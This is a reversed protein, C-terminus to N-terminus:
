RVPQHLLRLEDHQSLLRARSCRRSVTRGNNGFWDPVWTAQGIDWQNPKNNVPANGLAIIWETGPEPKPTLRVGCQLLSAQIATFLRTNFSDSPYLYTLTVGNPYGAKTLDSKCAATDGQGNADPYANTNKYGLNGPPIVTNIASAVCPGGSAKVVASKDVGLEIAERVLLKNAAGGSDPSRLNFVLYPYTTSWPWIKFNPDNAALLSPISSANITTDMPLDATGAQMDSLQTEASAVGETVQITSVYDHRITDTSQKWAANRVMTISKGPQYSSIKYPGDSLTNQDLQLSNPLYADYEVPRASAFPMALISLFDSAPQTLDFQITSADPTTIGSINHSNQFSAINAATPANKKNNFFTTEAACYASLGAITSTFYSQNGVPSVPNCFAKFERLFDQSTVQRAPTSNWDVGQKVHFTYTKGGNTIGGNAM